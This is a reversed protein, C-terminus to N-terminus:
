WLCRKVTTTTGLVGCSSGVPCDFDDKCELTCVFSAGSRAWCDGGPGCSGSTCKQKFRGVSQCTAYQPVCVVVSGGGAVPLSEAKRYPRVTTCDGVKAQEYACFRGATGLGLDVCVMNAGCDSSKSCISCAALTGSGAELVDAAADLGVDSGSDTGADVGGDIGDDIAGDLGGDLTGEDLTSDPAADSTVLSGDGSGGDGPGGDTAESSCGALALVLPLALVSPRRLFRM